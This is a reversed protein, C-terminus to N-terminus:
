RRSRAHTQLILQPVQGPCRQGDIGPVGASCFGDVTEVLRGPPVLDSPVVVTPQEYRGSPAARVAVTGSFDRRPKKAMVPLFLMIVYYVRRESDAPSLSNACGECPQPPLNSDELASETHAALFAM